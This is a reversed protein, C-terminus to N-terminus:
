PGTQREKWLSQFREIAFVLVTFLIGAGLLADLLTITSVTGPVLVARLPLVALVSATVGVLAEISASVQKGRGFLFTAMLLALFVPVLALLIIYTIAFGPRSIMIGFNTNESLFAAQLHQETFDGDRVFQVTLHQVQLPEFSKGNFVVLDDPADLYVDTFDAVYRDFPFYRPSGIMKFVASHMTNERPYQSFTGPPYMTSLSNRAFVESPAFKISVTHSPTNDIRLIFPDGTASLQERTIHRPRGNRVVRLNREMSSLDISFGLTM